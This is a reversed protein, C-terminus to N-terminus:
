PELSGVRSGARAGAAGRGALRLEHGVGGCDSGCVGIGAAGRRAPGVGACKGAGRARAADDHREFRRRNGRCGVCAGCLGHRGSGRRPSPRRPELRRVGRRRRFGRHCLAGGGRSDGGLGAGNSGGGGDRAARRRSVVGSGHGVSYPGARGRGRGDGRGVGRGNQGRFRLLRAARGAAVGCREGVGRARRLRGDGGGHKRGVSAGHRRAVGDCAATWRSEM